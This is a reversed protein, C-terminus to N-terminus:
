CLLAAGPARQEGCRGSPAVGAGRQEQGPKGPQKGAWLVGLKASPNRPSIGEDEGSSAGGSATAQGDRGKGSPVTRRCSGHVPGQRRRRRRRGGREACGGGAPASPGPPLTGAGSPAGLRPSSALGGGGRQRRGLPSCHSSARPQQRRRWRRLLSLRRRLAPHGARPRGTLAAPSTRPPRCPHLRHSPLLLHLLRRLRPQKKTAPFNRHTEARGGRQRRAQGLLLLLLGAGRAPGRRGRAVEARPHEGVDGEKDGAERGRATGDKPGPGRPLQPPSPSGLTPRDAPPTKPPTKRGPHSGPPAPSRHQAPAAPTPQPLPPAAPPPGAGPPEAGCLLRPFCRDTFRFQLPPSPRSLPARVGTRVRPTDTSVADVPGAARSGKHLAAGRGLRAPARRSRQGRCAAHEGGSGRGPHPVRRTRAPPQLQQFSADKAGPPLSPFCHPFLDRARRAHGRTKCPPRGLLVQYLHRRAWCLSIRLCKVVMTLLVLPVCVKFTWITGENEVKKSM